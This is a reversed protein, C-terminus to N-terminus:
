VHQERDDFSIWVFSAISPILSQWLKATLTSLVLHGTEGGMLGVHELPGVFIRTLDGAQSANGFSMESRGDSQIDIGLHRSYLM